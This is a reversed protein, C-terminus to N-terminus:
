DQVTIKGSLSIVNGREAIVEEKIMEYALEMMLEKIVESVTKGM